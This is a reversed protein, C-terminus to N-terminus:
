GGFPSTYLDVPLYSQAGTPIPTLAARKLLSNKAREVEHRAQLQEDAMRELYLRHGLVSGSESVFKAL